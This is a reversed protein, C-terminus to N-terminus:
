TTEAADIYSTFGAIDAFLSAGIIRKNNKISLSDFDILTNASSYSIDKLPFAEKDAKVRRESASANWTFGYEDLLEDLDDEKLSSIQYVGESFEWCL